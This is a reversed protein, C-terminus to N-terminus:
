LDIIDIICGKPFVTVTGTGPLTDCITVKKKTTKMLYGITEFKPPDVDLSEESWGVHSEIDEWVIIVPKM